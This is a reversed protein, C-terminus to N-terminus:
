ENIVEHLIEAVTPHPYIHKRLDEITLGETIAMGVLLILESAPNGLMQGGIVKENEDVIVKFLGNEGENEVVYRGSYSMPLRLVKYPINRETLSEESEGVSAIEPHTYVVGPIADYRMVDDTRGLIHHVAVEGMRIATHALMSRGTVDGAAYVGPINTQMYDNVVIAGRETNVGISDLGLGATVPRRGASLLIQEASLIKEEGEETQITVSTSSTSIVKSNLYFTVGKKSYAEMLATSIEGGMKGLIKHTMEVVTVKMGLSTYLSVFEMGIVGAGIVVISSPLEKADLAERSTWYGSELLGPIPPVSAESGTCLLLHKALYEEDAEAKVRFLGEETRGTITAQQPLYEAGAHELKQAVGLVLKRVIKNKRAVIKKYDAKLDGDLVLGYKKADELKELLNSSHLLAKTPICGENLCVGGLSKREFILTKLGSKAALAAANYGGPGGGIIIIDYTM